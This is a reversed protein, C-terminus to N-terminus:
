EVPTETVEQFIPLQRQKPNKNLMMTLIELIERDKISAPLELPKKGKLIEETKSLIFNYMLIPQQQYRQIMQPHLKSLTYLEFYSRGTVLEFITMGLSWIDAKKLSNLDFAPRGFQRTPYMIEPAIYLQTGGIISTNCDTKICALGFDIYKIDLTNPNIMINDPKIDRHAVGYAHIEHLGNILNVIIVKVDTMLAPEDIFERLTIYDGLFETIIYYYIDDEAFDNFCLIYPQCVAELHKLVMVEREVTMRDIDIKPIRKIVITDYTVRNKVAFVEGFTGTGLRQTVVFNGPPYQFNSVQALINKMRQIEDPSLGPIIPEIIARPLPESIARPRRDLMHFMKILSSKIEDLSM